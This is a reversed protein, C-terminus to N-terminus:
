KVAQQTQWATFEAESLEEGNIYYEKDGNAYVIAPGKPNHLKGNIYHVKCGNASIVAPGHPNHLKDNIWYEKHGDVYVIAPGHPNHREDDANRYTVTGNEDTEVKLKEKKMPEYYYM